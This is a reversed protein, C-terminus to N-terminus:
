FPNQIKKRHLFIFVELEIILGTVWFVNCISFEEKKKKIARNKDKNTQKGREKEREEISM